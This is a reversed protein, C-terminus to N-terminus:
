INHLSHFFMSCEVRFAIDGDFEKGCLETFGVSSFTLLTYSGFPIPLVLFALIERYILMFLARVFECVSAAPVPCALTQVLYPGLASLSAPM